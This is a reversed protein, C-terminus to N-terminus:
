LSPLTLQVAHCHKGLKQLMDLTLHPVSGGRTVLLFLPTALVKDRHQCLETLSGLRAGSNRVTEIAFKM